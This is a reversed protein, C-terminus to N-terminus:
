TRRNRLCDFRSKFLDHQTKVSVVQLWGFWWKSRATIPDSITPGIPNKPSPLHQVARIVM